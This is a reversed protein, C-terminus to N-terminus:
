KGTLLKEYKKQYEEAKEFEDLSKEYVLKIGADKMFAATETQFGPLALGIMGIKEWLKQGEDSCFWSIWLKAANPHPAAKPVYFALCSVNTPSTRFMDIPAGKSKLLNLSSLFTPIGISAEGAAIMNGTTTTGKSFIPKQAKIKKVYDTVWADENETAAFRAFFWARRELLIKGKWQPALLSELFAKTSKPFNEPNKVANTNYVMAYPDTVYIVAKGDFSSLQEDIGLSGSWDYKALLDRDLLPGLQAGTGEGVDVSCKGIKSETVIRQTIEGPRIQLHELKIGPYKESFREYMGRIQEVDRPCYLTLAGEKKAEKYLADMKAQTERDRQQSQAGGPFLLCMGIATLLWVAPKWFCSLRKM